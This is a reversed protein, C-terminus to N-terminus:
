GRKRIYHLTVVAGALFGLAASVALLAARPMVFKAFLVHTEVPQRNQLVIVALLLGVIVIVAIRINRKNLKM